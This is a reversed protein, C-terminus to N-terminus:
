NRSARKAGRYGSVAAFSKGGSSGEVPEPSRPVDTGSSFCKIEALDQDATVALQNVKSTEGFTSRWGFFFVDLWDRGLLVM